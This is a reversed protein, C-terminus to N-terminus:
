TPYIELVLAAGSFFSLVAVLYAWGIMKECVGYKRPILRSYLVIFIVPGIPALCLDSFHHDTTLSELSGEDFLLSFIHLSLTFAFGLVWASAIIVVGDVGVRCRTFFKALAPSGFIIVFVAIFPLILIAIICTIISAKDQNM